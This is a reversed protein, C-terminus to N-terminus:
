IDATGTNANNRIQKWKDNLSMELGGSHLINM